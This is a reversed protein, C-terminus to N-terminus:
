SRAALSREETGARATLALVVTPRAATRRNWVAETGM